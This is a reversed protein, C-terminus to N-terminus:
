IDLIKRNTNIKTNNSRVRSNLDTLEINKAKFDFVETLALTIKRTNREGGEQVETFL